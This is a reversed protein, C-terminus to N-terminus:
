IEADEVAQAASAIAYQIFPDMKRVEKKDMFELPYFDKVEGAVQSSFASADFKSILDIGSEGELLAKWNREVGMGLPSVLGLGTIVVRRSSILRTSLYSSKM